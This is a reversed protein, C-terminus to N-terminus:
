TEWIKVAEKHTKYEWISMVIKQEFCQKLMFVVCCPGLARKNIKDSLHIYHFSTQSIELHLHTPVSVSICCQSLKSCITPNGGLQVVNVQEGFPM